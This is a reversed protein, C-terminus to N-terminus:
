SRMTMSNMWGSPQWAWLNWSAWSTVKNMLEIMYLIEVWWALTCDSSYLLQPRSNRFFREGSQPASSWIQLQYSQPCLRKSRAQKLSAEWYYLSNTMDGSRSWVHLSGIALVRKQILHLEGQLPLFLRFGSCIGRRSQSSKILLEPLAPIVTHCCDEWILRTWVMQWPMHEVRKMMKIWANIMSHVAQAGIAVFFNNCLLSSM